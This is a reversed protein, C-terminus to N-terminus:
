KSRLRYVSPSLGMRHTFVRTFYHRNSFGADSAIDEISKASFLLEQSAMLVRREQVYDAPTQGTGERFKCIFHNRSLSCLEALFDNSLAESLHSEIYSIAPMIPCLAVESHEFQRLKEPSQDEILSALAEFLVAKLRCRLSLSASGQRKWEEVIRDVKETLGLDPSLCVAQPFLSTLLPASMGSLDFHSYFQELGLDTGCDFRVRAPILYTQGGRLSLREGAIEVYAGDRDNRYLRWYSSCLGQYRWTILPKVQVVFLRLHLNDNVWGEKWWKEM